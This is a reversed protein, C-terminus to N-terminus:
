ERHTHGQTLKTRHPKRGHHACDASGVGPPILAHSHGTHIADTVAGVPGCPAEGALCMTESLFRHFLQGEFQLAFEGSFLAKRNMSQSHM